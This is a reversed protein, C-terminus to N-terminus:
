LGGNKKIDLIKLENVGFIFVSMRESRILPTPQDGHVFYYIKLTLCALAPLGGDKITM